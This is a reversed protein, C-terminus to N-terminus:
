PRYPFAHDRHHRWNARYADALPLNGRLILVNEANKTQAAYTFNFSGTVVTAGPTRADIVMVKNHAAAHSADILTPIGGAAMERVKGRDTKEMQERDAILRVDIGRRKAALLAAAIDRSTFSFAQVLIQQRAEGIARVILGTADDEPSFALQVTGTAALTKGKGLWPSQFATAPTIALWAALFLSLRWFPKNM